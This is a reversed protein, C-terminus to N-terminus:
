GQLKEFEIKDSCLKGRRTRQPPCAVNKRDGKGDRKRQASQHSPLNKEHLLRNRFLGAGSGPCLQICGLSGTLVDKYLVNCVTHDDVAAGHLDIRLHDNSRTSDNKCAGDQPAFRDDACAADDAGIGQDLVAGHVFASGHVGALDVAAVDAGVVVDAGEGMHPHVGNGVVAHM